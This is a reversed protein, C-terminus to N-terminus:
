QAFLLVSSVCMIVNCQALKANVEAGVDTACCGGSSALMRTQPKLQALATYEAASPLEGTLVKLGVRKLVCCLAKPMCYSCEVM